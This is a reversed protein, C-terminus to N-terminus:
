RGLSQLSTVLHVQAAIPQAKFDAPTRIGVQLRDNHTRQERGVRILQRPGIPPHTLIYTRGNQLERVVTGQIPTNDNAQMPHFAQAIGNETLPALAGILDREESDLTRFGPPTPQSVLLGDDDFRQERTVKILQRVGIAPNTLVYA